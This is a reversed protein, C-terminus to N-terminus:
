AALLLNKWQDVPSDKFTEAIALCQCLEEAERRDRCRKLLLDRLRALTGSAAMLDKVAKEIVWHNHCRLLATNETQPLNKIYTFTKGKCWPCECDVPISEDLRMEFNLWESSLDHPNLYTGYKADWSTADFSVWDFFHTAMYAGIAIASLKSTGLLHVQRVGMERFRMLFLIIEGSGLNRIPMSFGDYQVGPISRVFLGLHELNYCQIPLFFRIGPCHKMRLEATELAWTVNFGMKRRFEIERTERDDIKDIPFDLGVMIDPQLNVAAKVIHQPTLNIKEGQRIPGGPDYGIALGQREGQFITFGGSDLMTVKAGSLRILSKADRVKKEDSGNDPVNLLLGTISRSPLIHTNVGACFYVLPGM